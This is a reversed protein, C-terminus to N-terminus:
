WNCKTVENIAKEREQAERERKERDPFMKHLAIDIQAMQVIYWPCQPQKQTM